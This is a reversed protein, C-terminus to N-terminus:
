SFQRAFVEVAAWALSMALLALLAGRLFTRLTSMRSDYRGRSVLFQRGLECGLMSARGAAALIALIPTRKETALHPAATATATAVQPIARAPSPGLTTDSSTHM